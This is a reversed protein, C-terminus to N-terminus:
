RHRLLGQFARLFVTAMGWEKPIYIRRQNIKLQSARFIFSLAYTGYITLRHRFLRQAVAFNLVKRGFPDVTAAEWKKEYAFSLRHVSQAAMRQQVSPPITFRWLQQCWHLGVFLITEAQYQEVKKLLWRWNVDAIRLLFYLDNIYGIRSWSNNIGHHLVLLLVQNEIEFGSPHIMDSLRFSGIEKVLCDVRWHLDIDFRSTTFFPKFLSIEHLDDLMRRNPRLFNATDKGAVEYGDPTLITVAPGLDKEAVLIDMDGIPRLGREPYSHEALYIGKFSCHEINHTTLLATIRQYERLKVLNDTTIALCEQRLMVLFDDPVTPVERLFRYLLPTVRHWDALKTLRDWNLVHQQLFVTVQAAAESSPADSCAMILLTVEPSRVSQM